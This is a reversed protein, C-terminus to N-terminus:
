GLCKGEGKIAGAVMQWFEEAAGVLNSPNSLDFDFSTAGVNRNTVLNCGCLAAEVVVRGQPEPWRPIFVFNQARNYYDVMKEYEVYGLRNGFGAGKERVNEGLMTIDGDPFRNKLAELGKAECPVGAFLNEIDRPYGKNYFTTTDILPRLIYSDGVIDTGIVQEVIQRHLPSLFVNVLAKSYLEERIELVDVSFVKQILGLVCQHLVTPKKPCSACYVNGNCPLYDYNCVDVYSNDIHIYPYRRIISHLFRKGFFRGRIATREIKLLKDLSFNHLDALLFLDPELHLDIRKNIFMSSIKIRHGLSRGTEILQRLIMEGGGSYTFPDLYAVYNIKM